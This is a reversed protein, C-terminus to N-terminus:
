IGKTSVITRITKLAISLDLWWQRNKIYFLDYSLKNKTQDVNTGHHAHEGYIQAWGSLGPKILHRINYYSIVEEYHRVLSPLEPRPGILSLRGLIVSWLQPLEDVRTLRILRGIKTVHLNSGNEGYNGSDNGTMSRFKHIKILKGGRGVREQTIFVPGGDELKIASIVVPYIVLSILALPM